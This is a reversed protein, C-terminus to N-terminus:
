AGPRMEAPAAAGEQEAELTELMKCFEDFEEANLFKIKGIIRAILEEKTKGEM